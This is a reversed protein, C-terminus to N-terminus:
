REKRLLLFGVISLFNIPVKVKLVKFERYINIDEITKYLDHETAV